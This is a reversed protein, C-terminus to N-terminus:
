SFDQEILTFHTGKLYIGKIHVVVFQTSFTPKLEASKLKSIFFNM